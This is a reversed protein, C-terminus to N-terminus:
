GNLDGGKVASVDESGAEDKGAKNQSIYIERYIDHTKLLEEHTGVASIRGEDIVVIRDADEISSTRQAIIIKTTSPIYERMAKRILADTHTDVASTSDDFIIIKPKKLLARAICLRQRQGGSVNAGGQEIVKNYGDPNALIFEEACALRSAEKVEDETANEDGWRLNEIITGSFLVNKQLVMSVGDRLAKLDYDKVNVGGVLVEGNTADYLRPILQVLSSKSSGTAGIIGITEGSKISLNIDTLVKNDINSAYAFDVHRFEISGDAVETVPNLASVINSKEDLAEAIRAASESAMTMMVMIMNVMMLSMLIMFSYTLMASMQGVDYGIGKNTIVLYSGMTMTFIMVIYLFLQMLPGILALWREATTFDLRVQESAIDFKKSEYDERVFAKVVRMGRINEEVSENLKDYKRFIKKFIPMVKKSLLFMIIALVPVVIAFIIALRGGLKFAMFFAFVLMFPARIAMRIIMMFAMQVNNVDTTLRTVLSSASFRDINEFSYDNIAHFLDHRLNKGLGCSANACTVGALIGCILSGIAMVILTLGYKGIVAYSPDDNFCNVLNAIVYPIYCELVVEGAVIIPTAIAPAKYERVCSLIRKFM